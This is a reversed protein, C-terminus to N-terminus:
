SFSELNHLDIKPKNKFVQEYLDSSCASSAQM